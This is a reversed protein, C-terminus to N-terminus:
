EDDGKITLGMIHGCKACRHEYTWTKGKVVSQPFTEFVENGCKECKFHGLGWKPIYGNKESESM